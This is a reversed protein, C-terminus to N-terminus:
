MGVNLTSTFIQWFLTVETANAVMDTTTRLVM